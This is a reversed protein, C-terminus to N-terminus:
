QKSKFDPAHTSGGPPGGKVTNGVSARPSSIQTRRSHYGVSPNKSQLHSVAIETRLFSPFPEHESCRSQGPGQAQDDGSHGAGNELPYQQPDKKPEGRKPQKLCLPLGSHQQRRAPQAIQVRALFRNFIRCRDRRKSPYRSLNVKPSQEQRESKGQDGNPDPSSFYSGM